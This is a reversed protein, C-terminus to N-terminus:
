RTPGYTPLSVTLKSVRVSFALNSARLYTSDGGLLELKATHGRAFRWGNGFLQFAVKGKQNDELRYIGRSVLVQGGDDVDWLRAAIMGGRGTTRIQARVTPLGIMTFPKGVSRQAIATGPAQAAALPACPDGGGIPNIAQAIAPDGGSSSITQAARAGFGFADPHLQEWSKARYQAGSKGDRPCRSTFADVSGPRPGRGDGQLYAALFRAGQANFVHDPYGVNAGRPHGLDGFQFSVRAGKVHGFIRWLRVAETVPFLDDTWGNQVLMPAPVGTVGAISHNGTLERGIRLVQPPEPEGADTLQKWLPLNASFPAGATAYFGTGAGVGYLASIYSQKQVGVPEISQEVHYPRFDLFRGNPQLVYTMDSGGWRPYAAAISLNTGRPSRWRKYSGNPLRIRNRLRALNLSQIGGYSIGTVGIEDPNVIRQDVLLGLLYQVDRGEYRHDALRVWGRDCGPSTRSDMAGCSRGFGRSSPTIVAYGRKAFFNSNYHWGTSSDGAPTASEFNTKNGGWGHLMVITPFPGSGTPPLTVDVDLPVGDWSPVRQADTSTPCFLVGDQPTCAHGFPKPPAAQAAAPALLALALVLALLKKM